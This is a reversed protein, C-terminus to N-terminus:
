SIRDTETEEPAVLAVRRMGRGFIAHPTRHPIGTPKFDKSIGTPSWIAEAQFSAGRFAEERSALVRRSRQLEHRQGDGQHDNSFKGTDPRRPENAVALSVRLPDRHRFASVAPLHLRSGSPLCRGGAPRAHDGSLAEQIFRRCRMYSSFAACWATAASVALEGITMLLYHQTIWCSEQRHRRPHTGLDFLDEFIHRGRKVDQVQTVLRLRMLRCRCRRNVLEVPPQSCAGHAVPRHSGPLPPPHSLLAFGASECGPPALQRHRPCLRPPGEAGIIFRAASM